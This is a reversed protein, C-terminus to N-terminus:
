RNLAKEVILMFERVAQDFDENVLRYTFLRQQKHAEEMEQKAVNLRREIQVETETGRKLLRDKLVNISPPDMWICVADSHAKSVSKAGEIDIVMVFSKGLDLEPIISAPSGYYKGAYETFELFFGDKIKREFDEKSLFQYDQGDVEGDRPTRSTYTMVREIDFKEKLRNLAETVVSTKGAGSAASLVFLKGSKAM